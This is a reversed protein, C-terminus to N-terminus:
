CIGEVIMTILSYVPKSLLGLGIIFLCCILMPVIMTWGSEKAENNKEVFFAHIVINLLYGATLLASVLLIAPGIYCLINNLGKLAGQALYWKSVFGLMPPIGILGLSAITFCFMTLPMKKGIGDLGDVYTGHGYIITSGASMFLVNKILSHALVHLLAGIVSVSILCALGFLIYSVQSVTSYALRKKLLKEKYALMSGSLVTLLTLVIWM